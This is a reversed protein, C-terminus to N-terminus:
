ACIDVREHQGRELNVVVDIGSNLPEGELHGIGHITVEEGAPLTAVICPEEDFDSRCLDEANLTRAIPDFSEGTITIAILDAGVEFLEDAHIEVDGSDLLTDLQVVTIGETQEPDSPWVGQLVALDTSDAFRAPVLFGRDRPVATRSLLGDGNFDFRPFTGERERTEIVGNRNLDWFSHGEGGDLQTGDQNELYLLADRLARFDAMNVLGNGLVRPRYTEEDIYAADHNYMPIEGAEESEYTRLAGDTTGDDVDVLARQLDQNEMLVDIHMAAAFADIRPQTPGTTAVTTEPSTILTRMEEVTLDPELLWLAAILGTVFPASFSTGSATAWRPESEDVWDVEQGAAICGGGDYNQSNDCETSRVCSGPASVSGGVCSFDSAANNVDMSEAILYRGGIETAAAAIPGGFGADIHPGENGAAAVLMYRERGINVDSLAFRFLEGYYSMVGAWSDAYGDGDM